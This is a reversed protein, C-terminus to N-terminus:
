VCSLESVSKGGNFIKFLLDVDGISTTEDFAVTVQVLKDGNFVVCWERDQGLDSCYWM